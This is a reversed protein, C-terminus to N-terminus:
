CVGAMRSKEDALWDYTPEFYSKLKTLILPDEYIHSLDSTPAKMQNLHQLSSSTVPLIGWKALTADLLETSLEEMRISLFRESGVTEIWEPAFIEYRSQYLVSNHLSSENSALELDVELLQKLDSTTKTVSASHAIMSIARNIPDRLTALVFFEVAGQLQHVSEKIATICGFSSPSSDCYFPHVSTCPKGSVFFHNLLWDIPLGHKLFNDWYDIEKGQYTGAGYRAQLCKDISTSGTKGPGALLLLKPPHNLGTQNVANTALMQNLLYKSSAPDHLAHLHASVGYVLSSTSGSSLNSLLVSAWHVARSSWQLKADPSCTLLNSIIQNITFGIRTLILDQNNSYCLSALLLEVSFDHLNAARLRDSLYMALDAESSRTVRKLAGLDLGAASDVSTCLRHKCHTTAFPDGNTNILLNLWTEIACSPEQHFYLTTHHLSNKM